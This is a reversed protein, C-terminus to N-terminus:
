TDKLTSLHRLNMFLMNGTEPEGNDTLFLFLCGAVTKMGGKISKEGLESSILIGGFVGNEGGGRRPLTLTPTILTFFKL